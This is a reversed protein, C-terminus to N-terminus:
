ESGKLLEDKIEQSLSSENVWQTASKRDMYIWQKAITKLTSLYLQDDTIEDAVRVMFKPELIDVGDTIFFSALSDKSPGSPQKKLWAYVKRPTNSDSGRPIDRVHSSIIRQLVPERSEDPLAEALSIAKPLENELDADSVGPNGDNDQSAERIRDWIVETNIAKLIKQRREEEPFSEVWAIASDQDKHHWSMALDTLIEEKTANEPLAEAWQSAAQPDKYVWGSSYISKNATDKDHGDPLQEAWKCAAGMDDSDILKELTSQIAHSSTGEYIADLTKKDDSQKALSEVMQLSSDDRWAWMVIKEMLKERVEGKQIRQLISSAEQLHLHSLGNAMGSWAIDKGRGEPLQLVWELVTEHNQALWGSIITTMLNCQDTEIMARHPLTKNLKDSLFTTFMSSNFVDGTPFSQLQYVWNAASLPDVKIWRSFISEQLFGRQEALWRRWEKGGKTSLDRQFNKIETETPDPANDFAQQNEYHEYKFYSILAQKEAEKFDKDSLSIGLRRLAQWREQNDLLGLAAELRRRLDGISTPLQVDVTEAPIDSDKAIEVPSAKARVKSHNNYGVVKKKEQGRRAGEQYPSSHSPAFFLAIFKFGALLVLLSLIAGVIKKLSIGYIIEHWFKTIRTVLTKYATWFGVSAPTINMAAQVTSAILAEPVTATANETLLPVLLTASLTIGRRTLRDRLLTRARELMGRVEDYTSGLEKAAEEYTKSQLYCLAVPFRYKEPLELLEEDLALLLKERDEQSEQTTLNPELMEIVKREYERHAINKSRMKLATRLATGHLWGGVSVPKHALVLAAKQALTIFVLQFAEESDQTNVLVRQCIKYVMPGHQKVLVEFASNEKFRVFRELLNADM